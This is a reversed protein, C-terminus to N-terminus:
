RLFPRRAMTAHERITGRLVAEEPIINWASGSHFQTVSVVAADCPHLNRSVVTQLAQVLQSGLGDHMDRTLRRREGELVRQSEVLRLREFLRHLEEEREGVKQALETNLRTVQEM